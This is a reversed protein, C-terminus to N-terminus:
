ITIDKTFSASFVFYFVAYKLSSKDDIKREEFLVSQPSPKYQSKPLYKKFFLLRYILVNYMEMLIGKLMSDSNEKTHM